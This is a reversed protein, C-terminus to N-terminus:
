KVEVKYQSKLNEFFKQSQEMQTQQKLQDKIKDFPPIPAKSGKRLDNLMIIHYGFQTKVPVVTYQGKKLGKVAATFDPVYNSGDSWGLDGGKAKSGPDISYKQALDAFKAGKNLQKIIDLAIKQDKVLIHSVEFEQANAAEKKLQDYKAKLQADTVDDSKAQLLQAYIMPKVEQLKEQYAKTKDLGQKDGEILIAQQMGISQLIQKKFQPNNLQGAVMPSSKKIQAMAQDIIQPSVAKGNVYVTEAFSPVAIIASSLILVQILKKM